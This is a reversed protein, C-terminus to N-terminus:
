FGDGGSPRGEDLGIEVVARCEAEADAEDVGVNRRLGAIALEDVPEAGCAAVKGDDGGLDVAEAAVFARAVHEGQFFCQFEVIDQGDRGLGAVADILEPRPNLRGRGALGSM